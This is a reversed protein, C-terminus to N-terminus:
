QKFLDQQNESSSLVHRIVREVAKNQNVVHVKIAPHKNKFVRFVEDAFAQGIRKIGKFDLVIEKFSELRTVLRKAQSRSVLSSGGRELLKVAIKTKVFGYDDEQPNAYKSFIVDADKPSDRRIRMKVYTGADSKDVPGMLWDDDEHADFYLGSSLINFYEFMRSTFFIGEGTHREPDTTLKGKKLEFIADEMNALGLTKYIKNFIGIGFDHVTIRIEKADYEVAILVSEAKSHDIVNNLMETFGYNCIFKINEDLEPLFSLIEKEWVESEDLNAINDLMIKKKVAKLKYKMGKKIGFTEVIGEQKLKALNNLIAQRSLGFHESALKVIDSPHDPINDVIYKRITEAKERRKGMNKKLL